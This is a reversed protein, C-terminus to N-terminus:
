FAEDVPWAYAMGVKKLLGDNLMRWMEYRVSEPNMQVLEAMGKPFFKSHPSARFVDLIKARVKSATLAKANGKSTWVCCAPDFEIALQQEDVDRGTIHLVAENEGRSRALVMVGDACGAGGLTGSVEEVVDDAKGKKCHMLALGSCAYADLQTKLESLVEYDEDYANRRGTSATRFKALVDIIVLRPNDAADLWEGICALGGRDQRPWATAIQLRHSASANLGSLVKRARDQVRRLRDELALYLVDGEVTQMDGLAKGGAAITIALNLALWSKGLKPKGALLSLGESLLGPVAWKVPPFVTTMLDSLRIITPPPEDPRKSSTSRESKPAAPDSLFSLDRPKLTGADLGSKITARAEADPRRSGQVAALFLDQEVEARLIAGAGVLTGLAFAARNLTDNGAHAPALVVNARERELVSRAYARVRDQGSKVAKISPKITEHHGTGNASPQAPQVLTALQAATVVEPTEPASIVKAWRHPREPTAPGKRTLTGPVKSIRRADHVKRDIEVQETDYHDAIFKIAERLLVRSADDNPLDVRYLLHFGNGSDVVVPVPWGLDCLFVVIAQAIIGAAEHEEESSNTDRDRRPDLDILLWRRGVAYKSAMPADLGRPCPNLTFYVGRSGPAVEVCARAIGALDDGNCTIWKASPLGQIQIGLTPHALLSMAARVEGQQVLDSGSETGSGKMKATLM